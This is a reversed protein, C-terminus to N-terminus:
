KGGCVQVGLPLNSCSINLMERNQENKLSNSPFEFVCDQAVDLRSDRKCHAVVPFPQRKLVNSLSHMRFSGDSM